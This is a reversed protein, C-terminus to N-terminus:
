AVINILCMVNASADIFYGGCYFLPTRNASVNLM